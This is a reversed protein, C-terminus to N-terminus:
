TLSSKWLESPVEVVQERMAVFVRDGAQPHVVAGGTFSGFSPLVLVENRFYFCPMRISTRKGDRIKVVPHLHGAIHFGAGAADAPDHVIRIGDTLDHAKIWKLGHPMRGIRGDHNGLVFHIPMAAETIFNEVAEIIEETMGAPAHFFDGAIVCERADLENLIQSLRGLDRACDGEPVPMGHARFAASKGLHLDALVVTRTNTLFAVGHATLEIM